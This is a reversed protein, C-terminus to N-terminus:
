VSVTPRMQLVAGSHRDSSDAANLGNIVSSFRQLYGQAAEIDQVYCSAEYLAGFLYAGPHQTLLTNTDSDASLGTFKKYYLQKGTYTTDPSPAVIFNEGEITFYRPQGTHNTEARRWFDVPPIFELQRHPDVDLYFRKSALYNSPLATTQASITVDALTEMARIRLPEVLFAGNPGRVGYTIASETLAVFEPIRATLDSRALWNAIATRLDGYTAIAM